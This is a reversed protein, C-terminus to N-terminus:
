LKEDKKVMFNKMYNFRNKLSIKLMIKLMNKGKFM